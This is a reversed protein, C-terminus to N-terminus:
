IKHDTTKNNLKTEMTETPWMPHHIYNNHIECNNLSNRHLSELEKNRKKKINFINYTKIKWKM